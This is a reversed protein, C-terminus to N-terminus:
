RGFLYWLRWLSENSVVPCNTIIWEHIEAGQEEGWLKLCIKKYREDLNEM